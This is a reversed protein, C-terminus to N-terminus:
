AQLECCFCWSAACGLSMYVSCYRRRKVGMGRSLPSCIQVRVLEGERCTLLPGTAYSQMAAGLCITRAPSPDGQDVGLSLCLFPARIHGLHM